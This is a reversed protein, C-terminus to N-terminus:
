QQLRFMQTMGVLTIRVRVGDCKIRRSCFECINVLLQHTTGGGGGQGRGVGMERCIFLRSISIGDNQM